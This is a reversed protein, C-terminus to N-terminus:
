WSPPRVNNTQNSVVVTWPGTWPRVGNVPHPERCGAGILALALLLGAAVPRISRYCKM